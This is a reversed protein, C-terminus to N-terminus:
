TGQSAKKATEEDVFFSVNRKTCPDFGSLKVTKDNSSEEM